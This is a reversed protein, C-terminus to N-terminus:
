ASAEAAPTGIRRLAYLSLCTLAVETTVASPHFLNADGDFLLGFARSLAVAGILLAVLVVALRVRSEEAAAWLLFAGSGLQFGGYTARVDTLGGPTLAGFGAADTLFGPAFLYLVGFLISFAGFIRLYIRAFSM